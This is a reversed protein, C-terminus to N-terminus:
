ITSRGRGANGRVGETDEMIWPAEGQHMFTLAQESLGQWGDFPRKFPDAANCISAMGVPIAPKAKCSLGIFWKGSSLSKGFLGKLRTLACIGSARQGELGIADNSRTTMAWAIVGRRSWGAPKIAARDLWM